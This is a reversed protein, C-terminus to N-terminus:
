KQNRIDNEALIKEISEVKKKVIENDNVMDIIKNICEQHQNVKEIVLKNIRDQEKRSENM